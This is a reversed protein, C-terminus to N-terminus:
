KSFVQRLFEAISGLAVIIGFIRFIWVANGKPRISGRGDSDIKIEVYSPRESPIGALEDIKRRLDDRTM